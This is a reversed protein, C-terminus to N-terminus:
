ISAILLYAPFAALGLFRMTKPAVAYLMAVMAFMLAISFAAFSLTWPTVLMGIGSVITGQIMNEGALVALGVDAKGRLALVMAAIVEQLCTGFPLLIVTFLFPNSFTSLSDILVDASYLMVALGISLQIGLALNESSILRSFYLEEDAEFREGEMKVNAYSIYFGLVLLALAAFVRLQSAVLGLLVALPFVIAFVKYNVSLGRPLPPLSHRSLYVVVPVGLLITLSPAGIVAAQGVVSAEKSAMFSSVLAVSTEPLATLFAILVAGIAFRTLGLKEGLREVANIFFLSSVLISLISVAVQWM